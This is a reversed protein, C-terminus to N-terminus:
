TRNNAEDLVEQIADIQRQLLWHSLELVAIAYGIKKLDHGKPEFAMMVELKDALALEFESPESM